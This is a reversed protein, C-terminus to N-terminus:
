TREDDENFHDVGGRTWRDKDIMRMLIIKGKGSDMYRKDIMRM